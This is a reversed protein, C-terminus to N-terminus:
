PRVNRLFTRKEWIVYLFLFPIGLVISILFILLGLILILSFLPIFLIAGVIFGIIKGFSLSLDFERKLLRSISPSVLNSIIFLPLYLPLFIILPLYRFSWDLLRLSDVLLTSPYTFRVAIKVWASICLKILVGLILRPQLHYTASQRHWSQYFELYSLNDACHWFIELYDDFRESNNEHAEELLDKLTSVIPQFQSDQLFRKLTKIIDSISLEKSNKIWDILTPVLQANGPDIQGLAKATHYQQHQNPHTKMIETVANLLTNRRHRDSIEPIKKALLQFHGGAEDRHYEKQATRHLTILAKLAEPNGPDIEALSKAAEL